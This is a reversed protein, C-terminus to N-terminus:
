ALFDVPWFGYDSGDGPHAGFYTGEPALADLADFLCELLDDADAANYGHEDYEVRLKHSAPLEAMFAPILDSALMTGTSVTGIEYTM